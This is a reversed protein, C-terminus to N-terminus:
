IPVPRNAVATITHLLRQLRLSLRASRRYPPLLLAHACSDRSVRPQCQPWPREHGTVHNLTPQKQQTYRTHAHSPTPSVSHTWSRRGTACCLRKKNKWPRPTYLSLQGTRGRLGCRLWKVLTAVIAPVIRGSHACVRESMCLCRYM